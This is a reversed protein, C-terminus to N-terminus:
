EDKAEKRKGKKLGKGKGAKTEEGEIGGVCWVSLKILPGRNLRM